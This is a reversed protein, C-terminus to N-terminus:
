DHNHNDTEDGVVFFRVVEGFQVEGSCDECRYPRQEPNLHFEGKFCELHWEASLSAYAPTEAGYWPATLM